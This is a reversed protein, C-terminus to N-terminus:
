PMWENYVGLNKRTTGLRLGWLRKKGHPIHHHTCVPGGRGVTHACQGACCHELWSKCRATSFPGYPPPSGQVWRQVASFPLGQWSMSVGTPCYDNNLLWYKGRNNEQFQHTKLLMCLVLVSLPTPIPGARGLKPDSEHYYCCQPMKLSSICNTPVFLLHVVQLFEPFEMFVIKKTRVEAGM